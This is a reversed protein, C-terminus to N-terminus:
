KSLNDCIKKVIKTHPHEPGFKAHFTNYSKTSLDRAEELEGLDQLVMALNSQRTAIKPHGPEFSKQASALAEKLLDRAEELEGLDQLVLALNSQTTTYDTHEIDKSKEAISLCTRFLIEAQFYFGSDGLFSAWNSIQALSLFNDGAEEAKAMGALSILHPVIFISERYDGKIEAAEVTNDFYQAVKKGITQDVDMARAAEQTLRHITYVEKGKELISLNSLDILIEDAEEEEVKIIKALLDPDIREPNLYGAVKLGQKAQPNQFQQEALNLAAQISIQEKATTKGEIQLVEKEMSKALLM